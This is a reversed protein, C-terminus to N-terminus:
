SQIKVNLHLVVLNFEYCWADDSDSEYIMCGRYCPYSLLKSWCDANSDVALSDDYKTLGCWE